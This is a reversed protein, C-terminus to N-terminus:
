WCQCWLLSEERHIQSNTHAHVHLTHTFTHMHIYMYTSNTNAKCAFPRNISERANILFRSPGILVKARLLACKQASELVAYFQLFITCKIIYYRCAPLKSIFFEWAGRSTAERRKSTATPAKIYSEDRSNYVKFFLLFGLLSHSSTDPLAVPPQLSTQARCTAM